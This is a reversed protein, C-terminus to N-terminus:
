LMNEAINVSNVHASTKAPPRYNSSRPNRFCEQETHRPNLYNCHVCKPVATGAQRGATNNNSGASPGGFAGTSDRSYNHSGSSGVNGVNAINSRSFYNSSNSNNSNVFGKNLTSNNNNTVFRSSMNPRNSESHPSTYYSAGRRHTEGGSNNPKEVPAYADRESVYMDLM